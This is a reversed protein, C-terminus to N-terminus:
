LLRVSQFGFYVQIKTQLSYNIHHDELVFVRFTLLKKFFLINVNQKSLKEDDKHCEEVELEQWKFRISRLPPPPCCIYHFVIFQLSHNSSPSVRYSQEQQHWPIKIYELILSDSPLLSGYSLNLMM